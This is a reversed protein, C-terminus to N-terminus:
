GGLSQYYKMTKKFLLKNLIVFFTIWLIQYLTINKPSAKNLFIRIPADLILAFPSLYMIKAINQPWLILPILSGSLFSAFGQLLAKASSLGITMISISYFSIKIQNALIIALLINIPLLIPMRHNNFISLLVIFPIVQLLASLSAGFEQASINYFVNIPRILYKVFLGNSISPAFEPITGISLPHRILSALALYLIIDNWLETNIQNQTNFFIYFSALQLSLGIIIFLINLYFKAMFQRTKKLEALLIAYIPMFIQMRTM